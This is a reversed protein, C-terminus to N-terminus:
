YIYICVYLTIKTYLYLMAFYTIIIKYLIEYKFLNFLYKILHYTVIVRGESDLEILDFPTDEFSDINNLLSDCTKGGLIGSLGEEADDPVYIDKSYTAVGSYGSQKRPYSFYSTYGDILAINEPLQSGSIFPCM